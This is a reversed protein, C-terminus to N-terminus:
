GNDTRRKSRMDRCWEGPTSGTNIKFASTFSSTNNFGSLEQLEKITIENNENFLKIAEKVRYSNVLDRFNREMEVNIVKSLYSKNTNLLEALQEITFDKNLYPKDDELCSVLRAKLPKEELPAQDSKAGEESVYAARDESLLSDGEGREIIDKEIYVSEVDEVDGGLCDNHSLVESYAQNVISNNDEFNAFHRKKLRKLAFISLIHTSLFGVLAIFYDIFFRGEIHINLYLFNGLLLFIISITTYYDIDNRLINVFLYGYTFINILLAVKEIWVISFTWWQFLEPLYLFIVVVVILFFIAVCRLWGPMNVRKRTVMVLPPLASLIYVRTIFLIFYDKISEPTYNNFLGFLSNLMYLFYIAAMWEFTIELPASMGGKYRFLDKILLLFLVLYVISPISVGFLIYYM